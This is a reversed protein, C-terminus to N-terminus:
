RQKIAEIELEFEVTNGVVVGGKDMTKNWVMGFDRRDIEGEASFGARTNGWPDDVEGNFELELAVPKTVGMLTLEGALVYDDGDKEVGTSKFIMEPHTEVDFFDPNRLHDDRKPDDTNISATRVTAEVSWSAPSAADFEMSGSFDEFRGSVKSVMMHRVKFTLSSHSADIDYAAAAASGALALLVLALLTARIKRTTM